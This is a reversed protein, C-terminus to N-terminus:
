AIIGGGLCEEGLYFVASQGPTIARQPVAFDVKMFGGEIPTITVEQLPQRHRFRAMCNLSQGAQVPSEGSIWTLDELVALARAVDPATLADLCGSANLLRM